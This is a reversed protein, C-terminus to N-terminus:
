EVIYAIDFPAVEANEMVEHSAALLLLDCRCASVLIITWVSPYLLLSPVMLADFDFILFSHSPVLGSCQM